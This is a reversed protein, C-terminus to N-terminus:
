VREIEHTGFFGYPRILLIVLLVIYPVIFKVAGPLYAGLYGGALNEIVGIVLGGIVAGVVSDLGGLIVVPFVTLGIYSLEISLVNMQGIIMAGVAALLAAVMWSLAFMRNVDIGLSLAARQNDAAARMRVGTASYKFLLSFVVLCATALGLAWLHVMKVTVGAVAIPPGAFILPFNREVSGWAFRIVGRLVYALGITVMIVSAVPEGVLPRLFLREIALGLLMAIVFAALIALWLPLELQVLFAYVLYACMLLVEGQAFNIAGTAKYILVFGLAVLAYIGGVAIGNVVLFLFFDM